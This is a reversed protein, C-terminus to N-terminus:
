GVHYESFNEISRCHLFPNVVVYCGIEFSKLSLVLCHELAFNADAM